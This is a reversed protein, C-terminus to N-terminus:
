ACHSKFIYLNPIGGTGEPEEDSVSETLKTDQFFTDPIEWFFQQVLLTFNIM